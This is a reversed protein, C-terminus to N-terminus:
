ETDLKVVTVGAGGEGDRGEEWSLVQENKALSKRVASRLRGTGKGHIIRVWPMSSLFAADLYVELASLGEEVRLGRIDLEIKPGTGSSIVRTTITEQPEDIERSRFELDEIRARMRLRGVALEAEKHDLDVIKGKAGLSTIFVKDGIKLDQDGRKHAKRPRAEVFDLQKLTVTKEPEIQDAAKRLKKLQNKSETERLKKRVTRIEARIEELETEIQRRTDHLIIQREHDIKELRNQLQLRYDDAERLKMRTAAEQSDIKEKAEYIAYLLNESKTNGSGLFNLADDLVTQDLGLRRAIALANSRGPMGVSMEYTPMLTDVDFLLSANIVGPTNSAYSKLEPYHTAVFTTAGKDRLYAVISQALAAGESPDTGSGLEDLLVLSRDGASRLITVINIMHGSFTSLNQEISQEDGIDAYVQGFVTQKAEVAPLHMGSQAMLIMLGVTKLSVTKGGTNPGTILVIYTEEDLLLDTPVVNNPDILPHRAGRIWIRSGPHSGASARSDGAAENDTEHSPEWDVFTPQVAKSAEAYRARAFILDLEAIREVLRKLADGQDAVLSSLEALIRQVEEEEAIQMARYENNLDVTNLPEIWLTAGSNSQDHVIGKIRGKHNAMLPVVFRGGRLSITPEQLYQNQSSALLTRLKDQIRDHFIQMQRRISALRESASDLVEGREDLSASIRSVIGPCEEMLEAISALKPMTEYTKQLKRKLDRGAIITAQVELLEEPQLIFGLMANDVWRRIDRAGGVTVGSTTESLLRAETTQAQWEIALDMDSTPRFQRVLTEGASFSTYGALQSLIKDYELTKLTKDDM